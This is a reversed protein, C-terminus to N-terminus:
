AACDDAQAVVVLVSGDDEPLREVDYHAKEAFAYTNPQEGHLALPGPCDGCVCLQERIAQVDEPSIRARGSNDFKLVRHEATGHLHNLFYVGLNVSQEEVLTVQLTDVCSM